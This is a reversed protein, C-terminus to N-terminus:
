PKPPPAHSKIKGRAKELDSLAATLHAADDADTNGKLRTEAATVASALAEDALKFSAAAAAGAAGQEIKRKIWFVVWALMGLGIAGGVLKVWLPQSTIDSATSIQKATTNLSSSEATEESTTQDGIEVRVRPKEKEASASTTAPTPTLKLGNDASWVATAVCALLILPLRM